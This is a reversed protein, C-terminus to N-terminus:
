MALNRSNEASEHLGGFLKRALLDIRQQLLAAPDNLGAARDIKRSTALGQFFELLEDRGVYHNKFDM